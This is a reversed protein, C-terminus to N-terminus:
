RAARSRWCRRRWRACRTWTSTTPPSTSCCCTARADRLLKAMHLRNREGGSLGGVKKQQDSGKFNFSSVYARSNMTRGGVDIQEDGGSIEEWVTKDGDLADRSQDVYSLEVTEGM